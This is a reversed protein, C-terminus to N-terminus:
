TANEIILMPNQRASGNGRSYSGDSHDLLVAAAWRRWSSGVDRGDLEVGRFHPESVSTFQCSSGWWTSQDSGDERSAEILALEDSCIQSADMRPNGAVQAEM